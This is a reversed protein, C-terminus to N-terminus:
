RDRPCVWSSLKDVQEATATPGLVCRAHFWQECRDCSIMLSGDDLNPTTCVCNVIDPTTNISAVPQKITITPTPTNKPTLKIKIKPTGTTPTEALSSRRSGADTKIHPLKSKAISMKRHHQLTPITSPSPMSMVPGDAGHIITMNDASSMRRPIAPTPLAPTAPPIVASMTTGAIRAALQPPVTQLVLDNVLSQEGPIHGSLTDNSYIDPQIANALRLRKTSDGSLMVASEQENSLSAYASRFSDQIAQRAKRQPSDTAPAGKARVLKLLEVSAPDQSLQSEEFPIAQSYPNNILRRRRVIPRDGNTQRQNEAEIQVQVQEIHAGPLPPQFEYAYALKEAADHHGNGNTLPLILENDDEDEEDMEADEDMEELAEAAQLDEPSLWEYQLM